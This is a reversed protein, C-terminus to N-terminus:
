WAHGSYSEAFQAVSRDVVAVGVRPAEMREPRLLMAATTAAPNIAALMMMIIM